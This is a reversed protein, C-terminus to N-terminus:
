AESDTNQSQQASAYESAITTLQLIRNLHKVIEVCNEEITKPGWISQIAHSEVNPDTEFAKM